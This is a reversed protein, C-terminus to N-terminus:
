AQSYGVNSRYANLCTQTRKLLTQLCTNLQHQNNDQINTDSLRSTKEGKVLQKKIEAVYKESKVIQELSFYSSSLVKTLVTITESYLPYSDRQAYDIMSLNFIATQLAQHGQVVSHIVRTLEPNSYFSTELANVTDDFVFVADYADGSERILTLQMYRCLAQKMQRVTHRANDYESIKWFFQQVLVLSCVGCFIGLLREFSPIMSLAPSLGYVSGIVLVVTAQIGFYSVDASGMRFYLLGYCFCFLVMLYIVLNDIALGLFLVALLCGIFCGTFRQFGKYRTAAGSFSVSAIISIAIQSFGSFNFFLWIFPVILVALAYILSFKILFIDHKYVRSWLAPIEKVAHVSGKDLPDLTILLEHLIREFLCLIHHIYVIEERNLNEYNHKLIRRFDAVQNKGTCLELLLRESLAEGNLAEGLTNFIIQFQKRIETFDPLHNFTASGNADSLTSLADTIFRACRTFDALNLARSAQLIQEGKIPDIDAYLAKIGSKLEALTPVVVSAEADPSIFVLREVCQDFVQALQIYVHNLKGRGSLWTSEPFILFSSVLGAIIGISVEFFRYFAIEIFHESTPETLGMLMVMLASAPGLIWVYTFRKHINMMYMGSAAVIFILVCFLLTDDSFFLSLLLGICAGAGTSIIRLVSKWATAGVTKETVVLATVCAWFPMDMHLIFALLAALTTAFACRLSRKSQMGRFSFSQIEKSFALFFKKSEVKM